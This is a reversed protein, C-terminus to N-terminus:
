SDAAVALTQLELLADKANAREEPRPHLLRKALNYMYLPMARPNPSSLALLEFQKLSSSLMDMPGAVDGAAQTLM